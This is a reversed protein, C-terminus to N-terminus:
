TRIRNGQADFFHLHHSPLSVSVDAGPALYARDSTFVKFPLGNLSLHLIIGFGTPEVLEVRAALGEASLEVHEPRIGVTIDSEDGAGAPLVM